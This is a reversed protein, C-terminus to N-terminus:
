VELLSGFFYWKVSCCFLIVLFFFFIKLISYQSRLMVFSTWIYNCFHVSMSVILAGIVLCQICWVWVLIVLRLISLVLFMVLIKVSEIIYCTTCFSYPNQVFFLSSLTNLIFALGSWLMWVFFKYIYYLYSSIFIYM